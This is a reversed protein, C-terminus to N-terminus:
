GDPRPKSLSQKGADTRGSAGRTSIALGGLLMLATAVNVVPPTVEVHPLGNVLVAVALSALLASGLTPGARDCGGALVGATLALLAFSAGADPRVTNRHAAIMVAAAGALLGAVTFLAIPGRPPPLLSPAGRMRAIERTFHFGGALLVLVVLPRPILDFMLHHALAALAPPQRPLATRLRVALVEAVGRLLAAAALTLLPAPLRLRSVLVGNAAGAGAALLLVLAAALVLILAPPKLMLALTVVGLGIIGPGSLDPRGAALLLAAPVAVLAIETTLRAIEAFNVSTVFNRGLGVVALEAGVLIALGVVRGVRSSSRGAFPPTLELLPPRGLVARVLTDAGLALILLAGEAAPAWPALRPHAPLASALAGVTLAGAMTSLASAQGEGAAVLGILAAALVRVLLVPAEPPAGTPGLAAIVGGTAALAGMAAFPGIRTSAGRRRWTWACTGLVGLAGAALLAAGTRPPLGLWLAAAAPPRVPTAALLWRLGEGWITAMAFTTLLAPLRLLTVLAGNVAGLAVGTGVVLPVIAVVPIGRAALATTLASGVLMQEGASLDVHGRALLRSMGAAALLLAALASVLGPWRAPALLAPALAPLAGAAALAVAAVILARKPPLAV